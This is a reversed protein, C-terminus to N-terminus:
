LASLQHTLLFSRKDTWRPKSGWRQHMFCASESEKYQTQKRNPGREDFNRQISQEKSISNTPSHLDTKTHNVCTLALDGVVDVYAV